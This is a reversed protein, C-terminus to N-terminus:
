IQRMEMCINVFTLSMCIDLASAASEKTYLVKAVHLQHLVTLQAHRPRVRRERRRVGGDAGGLHELQASLDLPLPWRTLSHM